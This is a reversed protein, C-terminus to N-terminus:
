LPLKVARGLENSRHAALIVEVAKRGDVDSVRAPEGTAISHLYDEWMLRFHTNHGAVAPVEVDHIDTDGFTRPSLVRLSQPQTPNGSRNRIEVYGEDGYIFIGHDFPGNKLGFTATMEALVGCGFRLTVIATDEEVMDIVKRTGMTCSVQDVDGFLWRLTYMPHVSQAMLVGNGGRGTALWPSRWVTNPGEFGTTQALFVTGLAGSVVMERASEYAHSYIRNQVIFLRRGSSRAAEIMEDCEALSAAMPKECVVHKGAKLAEVAYRHHLDPPLLVGVIEVRSDALLEDWTTYVKSIGFESARQDARARDADFIGIVSAESSDALAALHARSINGAGIVAVNISM